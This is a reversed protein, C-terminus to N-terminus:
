PPMAGRCFTWWGCDNANAVCRSFFGLVTFLFCVVYKLKTVEDVQQYQGCGLNRTHQDITETPTIAFIKKGKHWVPLKTQEQGYIVKVVSTSCIKAEHKTSQLKAQRAGILNWRYWSVAAFADKALWPFCLWSGHAFLSFRIASKFLSLSMATHTKATNHKGKKSPAQHKTPPQISQHLM